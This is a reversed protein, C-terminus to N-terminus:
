RVLDSQSWLLHLFHLLAFAYWCIFFSLNLGNLDQALSSLADVEGRAETQRRQACCHSSPSVKSALQVIPWVLTLAHIEKYFERRHSLLLQQSVFIFTALISDCNIRQEQFGFM